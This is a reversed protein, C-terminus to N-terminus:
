RMGVFSFALLPLQHLPRWLCRASPQLPQPLPGFSFHCYSKQETRTRGGSFASAPPVSHRTGTGGKGLRSRRRARRDWTLASSEGVEHPRCCGPFVRTILARGASGRFSTVRSSHNDGLRHRREALTLDHVSNDLAPDSANSAAQLPWKM